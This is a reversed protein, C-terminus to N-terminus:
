SQLANIMNMIEDESCERYLVTGHIHAGKASSVIAKPRVGELDDVIHYHTDMPEISRSSGGSYIKDVGM